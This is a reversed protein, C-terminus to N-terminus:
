RKELKLLFVPSLHNLCYSNIEGTLKFALKNIGSDYKPEEPLVFLPHFVRSLLYYLGMYYEDVIRFKKSIYQRLDKMNFPHNRSVIEIDSLGLTNRLSSINNYGEICSELMLYLGGKKLVRHIEDIATQQEGWNPLNILSRKTIVIDFHNTTFPLTRADTVYFEVNGSSENKKIANAKEIMNPSFDVGIVTGIIKSLRICLRGTGCGVDLAGTAPIVNDLIWNSEILGQYTDNLTTEDDLKMELARRQWFNFRNDEKM